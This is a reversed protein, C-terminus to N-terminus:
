HYSIQLCNGKASNITGVYPVVSTTKELILARLLKPCCGRAPPRNVRGVPGIVPTNTDLGLSHPRVIVGTTECCTTFVLRAPLVRVDDTRTRDGPERVSVGIYRCRISEKM